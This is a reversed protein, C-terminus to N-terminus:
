SIRGVWVEKSRFKKPGWFKKPCIEFISRIPNLISKLISNSEPTPEVRLYSIKFFTVFEGSISAMMETCMGHVTAERDTKRDVFVYEATM